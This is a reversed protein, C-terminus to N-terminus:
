VCRSTYLLCSMPDNAKPCGTIECMIPTYKETDGRIQNLSICKKLFMRKKRTTKKIATIIRDRICM